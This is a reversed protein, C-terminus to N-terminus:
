ASVTPVAVEPVEMLTVTVLMQLSTPTRGSLRMAAVLGTTPVVTITFSYRGPGGPGYLWVDSRVCAIRGGTLVASALILRRKREQVTWQKAAWDRRSQRSRWDNDSAVARDPRVTEHPGARAARGFTM